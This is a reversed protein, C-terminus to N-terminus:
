SRKPPEAVCVRDRGARKAAYMAQDASAVLGDVERAHREWEAVGISLTVTTSADAEASLRLREPVSARLREALVGAGELDTDPAFVLFEEGGWRAAVDSGRLLPARGEKSSPPMLM